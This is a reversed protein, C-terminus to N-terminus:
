RARQAGHCALCALCAVRAKMAGRCAEPDAPCVERDVDSGPCLGWSEPAIMGATRGVIEM